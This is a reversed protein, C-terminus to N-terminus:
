NWTALKCHWPMMALFQLAEVRCDAVRQDL